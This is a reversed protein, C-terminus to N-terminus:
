RASAGNPNFQYVIYAANQIQNRFLFFGCLVCLFFLSFSAHLKNLNGDKCFYDTMRLRLSACAFFSREM